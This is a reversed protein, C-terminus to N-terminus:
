MKEDDFAKPNYDCLKGQPKDTRDFIYDPSVDRQGSEYRFIAPQAVTVIKKVTFAQTSSEGARTASLLCSITKCSNEKSLNELKILNSM